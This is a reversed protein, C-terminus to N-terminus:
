RSCPNGERTKMNLGEAALRGVIAEASKELRGRRLREVVSAGSQPAGGSIEGPIACQSGRKHGGCISGCSGHLFQVKFRKAKEDM